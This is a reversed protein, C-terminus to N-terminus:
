EDRCELAITYGNPQGVIRVHERDANRSFELVPEPGVPVTPQNGSDFQSPYQGPLQQVSTWGLNTLRLYYFQQVWLLPEPTAWSTRGIYPVMGGADPQELGGVQQAGPYIPVPPTACAAAPRAPALFATLLLAIALLAARM